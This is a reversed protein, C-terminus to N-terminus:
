DTPIGEEEGDGLEAVRELYVEIAEALPLVVGWSAFWPSEVARSRIRVPPATEIMTKVEALEPDIWWFRVDTLVPRMSPALVISRGKTGTRIEDPTMVPRKIESTSVSGGRSSMSHQAVQVTRDGLLKSLYEATPQDEAGLNIKIPCAVTLVEDEGGYYKRIQRISQVGLVLRVGASRVTQLKEELSPMRKLLALEDIVVLLRTRPVPQKARHQMEHFSVMGSMVDDLIMQAVPRLRSADALSGTLYLVAKGEYLERFDFDNCSLAELLLPDRYPRLLSMVNADMGSLTEKPLTVMASLVDTIHPHTATAVGEHNMWGLQLEPDHEATLLQMMVHRLNGQSYVRLVERLNKEEGVYLVHLVLCEFIERAWTQWNNDKTQKDDRLPAAFYESLRQVGAIDGLGMPIQLLPNIRSRGGVLVEPPRPDFRYIRRGKAQLAAATYDFLEGGKPDYVVAGGTAGAGIGGHLLLAPVLGFSTKGTGTAGMLIVHEEGDHLLQAGDVFGVPLGGNSGEFFGAAQMDSKKGFRGTGHAGVEVLKSGKAIGEIGCGIAVVVWGLIVGYTAMEAESAFSTRELVGRWSWFALPSYVVGGSTVWLALLSILSKMRLSRWGGLTLWVFAGAVGGVSLLRMSGLDLLLHGLLAPAYDLRWALWQVGFWQVVLSLFGVEIAWFVLLSLTRSSHERKSLAVSENM